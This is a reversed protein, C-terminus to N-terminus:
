GGEADFGQIQQTLADVIFKRNLSKKKHCFIRGHPETIMCYWGNNNFWANLRPTDVVEFFEDAVDRDECIVVVQTPYREEEIHCRDAM